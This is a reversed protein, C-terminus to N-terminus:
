FARSHAWWPRRPAPIPRFQRHQGEFPGAHAAPLGQHDSFLLNPTRVPGCPDGPSASPGFTASKVHSLAWAPRRFGIQRAFPGVRTAPLHNPSDDNRPNRLAIPTKTTLERVRGRRNGGRGSEARRRPSPKSIQAEAGTNARRTRGRADVLLPDNGETQRQAEQQSIARENAIGRVPATNTRAGSNNSTM